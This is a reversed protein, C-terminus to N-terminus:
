FQFYIFEQKVGFVGSILVSWFAVTYIAWRAKLSLNGVQEQVWGQREWMEIGFLLVIMFVLFVFQPIGVVDIGAQKLGFGESGILFM